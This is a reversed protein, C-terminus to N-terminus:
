FKFQTKVLAGIVNFTDTGSGGVPGGDTAISENGTQGGFPRHLYFLAPTVTINDSVKVDYYLEMAFNSDDDDRIDPGKKSLSGKYETIYALQGFAFGLKNGDVFADKWNMGLFWGQTEERTGAASGDPINFITIDYGASFSPVLGSEEPQWFARLAYSNATSECNDWGADAIACDVVDADADYTGFGTTAEDTKHAHALSVQWQPNGYTIKSLWISDSDHTFMGGTTPDGSKGDEATYGTSASIRNDMPDDVSQKWSVGFGAGTSAGYTGYNGGLKFAKLIPKYVSPASDLMYYNEIKPGVYVQFGDGVPFQYWLKDLYLADEKTNAWELYAPKVYANSSGGFASTNYNGTKIRQYLLDEGTFSTNLDLQYIYNMSVGDTPSTMAGKEGDIEYGTGGLSMIAKGKLKTTTSFQGAEMEGVRAMMGDVKGKLVALEPGFEKLLRKVDDTVETGKAYELCANLLSAAEYRTISNSGEFIGGACGYRDSLASLAKYAWDTPYVDSFQSFSTVQEGTASYDSVGDINLDAAQAAMPALLGLAAPAVLLQQFLKM